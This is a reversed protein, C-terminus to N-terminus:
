AKGKRYITSNKVGYTMSKPKLRKGTLVRTTWENSSRQDKAQTGSLKIVKSNRKFNNVAKTTQKSYTKADFGPPKSMYESKM